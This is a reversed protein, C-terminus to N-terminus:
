EGASVNEAQLKKAEAERVREKKREEARFDAIQLLERESRIDSDYPYVLAAKEFKVRVKQARDPDEEYFLEYAYQTRIVSPFEKMPKMMAKIEKTLLRDVVERRNEGILEVYVRDMTLLGRYLNVMASKMTLLEEMKRDAELFKHEDMLRNCCFVGIASILANQMGEYDPVVFWDKPMDKLRVGNANQENIKMQIWFARLAEPNKRLSFANYGDNDVVGMRLPVGNIIGFAIGLIANLLLFSSLYPVYPMVQYWLLVLAAVILNMLSGGLNYLVVPYTGNKFDPPAMLCQGGTGAVTLKKKRIHDGEKLWMYSFIRFSSFRYGTLLGFVLHGSEHVLMQTLVGLCLLVLMAAFSVATLILSADEGVIRDTEGAILLGCLFGVTLFLGIAFWQQWPRKAKKM